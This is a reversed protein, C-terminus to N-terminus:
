IINLAVRKEKRYKKPYVVACNGFGELHTQPLNKHPSHTPFEDDYGQMM